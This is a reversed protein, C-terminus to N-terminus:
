RLLARGSRFARPSTRRDGCRKDAILYVDNANALASLVPAVPLFLLTFTHERKGLLACTLAFDGFGDEAINAVAPSDLPDEAAM